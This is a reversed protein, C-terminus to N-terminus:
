PRPEPTTVQRLLVFPAAAINRATIATNAKNFWKVVAWRYFKAYFSDLDVSPQLSEAGRVLERNCAVKKLDFPDNDLNSYCQDHQKCFQDLKDIPAESGMYKGQSIQGGSWKGGCWNGYTPGDTISRVNAYYYMLQQASHGQAETYSMGFPNASQTGWPDILRLPDNMVYAYLNPGDGHQGLPDPSAYRGTKADYYRANNFFLGTEKDYYQGPLGLNYDVGQVVPKVLGFAARKAQWVINGAGDTLKNPEGLHGSTVHYLAGNKVMGIPQGDLWIHEQVPVVKNKVLGYEGMLQWGEAGVGYGYLMTGGPVAPGSKSVRAGEGNTGYQTTVGGVTMSAVRGAANVTFTDPGQGVRNGAADYAFSEAAAGAIGMLRNSNPAIQYNHAAGSAMEQVRNGSLDYAYNREAGGGSEHILRSVADYLFQEELDPMVRMDIRGAADYGLNVFDDGTTQDVLRGNRDYERWGWVGNGHQWARPGGFPMYEINTMLTQGNVLVNWVKGNADNHHREVKMKSPYTTVWPRGAWDYTQTTTLTTKGIKQKKSTWRGHLDYTYTTSGTPDTVSALRGVAGRGDYKLTVKSGDAYTATTMRNLNDYAYRTTMGRADTTAIMNGAEDYAYTTKGRDPSNEELVEGFGNFKYTTALGRPDTVSTIHDLADYGVRIAGGEANVTRTRRNLKDYEMRTVNGMPDAIQTMNGNGDYAFHSVHGHADIDQVKRNMADFAAGREYTPNGASDLVIEQVVNGETDRTYVIRNGENDGVSVLRRAGDYGFEHFTGDPNVVRALDGAANYDYYTVQGGDNEVVPQGRFNYGVYTAKKNPDTIKLPRGHADYSAFAVAHRLPNTVSLLNGSRTDYKLTTTDAKGNRPGDITLVDNNANYTYRETRTQGDATVSRAVLNGRADYAMDTVRGPETVKTPLRFASHWETAVRREQATGSAEVRLTQLNRDNYEFRTTVGNEDTQSAIRGRADLVYSSAGCNCGQKDIQTPRVMEHITQFAYRSVEGKSDTVTSTGDANYAVTVKGAQGAHESAIARGHADYAYTAYRSVNGNAAVISIGTLARPFAANEYHYRLGTGDPYTVSTLNDGGGYGYHFVGGDPAHMKAVRGQADNEFSLRHGFPGAVQQLHGAANYSLRTVLGNRTTVTQLKGDASYTEVSDDERVLRWGAGTDSLRTVVDPDSTWVGGNLRFTDARGDERTVKVTNADARTIARDWNTRWNSGVSSTSAHLSNYYRKLSLRAREAAAYDTAVEFKNGTGVHIPNGVVAACDPLGNTKESAIVPAPDVPPDVPPNEPDVPPDVPPNEPDPPLSGRTWTGPQTYNSGGKEILSCSYPDPNPNPYYELAQNGAVYHGEPQLLGSTRLFVVHQTEENVYAGCDISWDSVGAWGVSLRYAHCRDPGMSYGYVSASAIGANYTITDFTVTVTIQGPGCQQCESPEFDPRCGLQPGTYNFVLIEANAKKVDVAGFLSLAAIGGCVFARASRSNALLEKAGDKARSAVNCVARSARKWLSTVPEAASAGGAVIENEQEVSTMDRM